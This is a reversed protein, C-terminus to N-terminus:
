FIKWFHNFSSLTRRNLLSSTFPKNKIKKTRISGASLQSRAPVHSVCRPGSFLYKGSTYVPTIIADERHEASGNLPLSTSSMQTKGSFPDHPRRGKFFLESSALMQETEGSTEKPEISLELHFPPPLASVPPGPPGVRGASGPFGTPGQLCLVPHVNFCKLPCFYFYFFLM